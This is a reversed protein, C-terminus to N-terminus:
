GPPRGVRVGPDASTYITAEGSKNDRYMAVFSFDVDENSDDFNHITLVLECGDQAVRTEIDHLTDGKGPAYILGDEIFRWQGKKDDTKLHFVLVAKEYRRDDADSEPDFAVTINQFSKKKGVGNMPWVQASGKEPLQPSLEISVIQAGGKPVVLEYNQTKKAM